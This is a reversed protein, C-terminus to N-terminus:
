RTLLTLAVVLGMVVPWGYMLLRWKAPAHWLEMFGDIIIGSKILAIVLIVVVQLLLTSAHSGWYVTAATLLMLSLWCALLIKEHKLSHM